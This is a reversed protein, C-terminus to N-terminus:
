FGLTLLRRSAGFLLGAQQECGGEGLGWGGVWGGVGEIFGM